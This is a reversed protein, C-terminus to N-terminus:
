TGEGNTGAAASLANLVAVVEAPSRCVHAGAEALLAMKAAATEAAGGVLAGAHGLRRGEPASRGAILVVVPKAIEPLARALEAEKGGGIEGVVVVADTEPDAEFARVYEVPRRGIISDGGMSVVTSQGIGAASLTRLMLLSLTGSRSVLGIRGPRSFAPPLGCLMGIGPSLLGLSNPGVVWLGADRARALAAAVDHVPAYEAAAVALSLGAEAAEVIADAVAFPPSYIVSTDAGTAARAEAVTDFLDMGHATGGGHGPAVGGVIRTGADRMLPIMQRAYASHANQVIVRSDRELLIAM